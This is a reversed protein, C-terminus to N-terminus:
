LKYATRLAGWHKGLVRIPVDIERMMVVVGNGMDRPYSQILYPRVNRAAALGARDDFIRRNRCNATNWTVDGPRQPLSYIRNHVPLYGSRDVAACFAIRRDSALLAEQISPLVDDFADLFRTRYQVPDTGEIPVYCNDFLDAESLVRRAVMEDLAASIKTAASTAAEIFERNEDRIDKLLAHLATEANAVFHDFRVHLGLPSRNVITARIEGIDRITMPLTAGVGIADRDKVHLLMGGESLDVTKAAAEGRYTHMTVPLECPLRDHRRRDGVITQRLFIVFRTRLKEALKAAQQGSQAVDMNRITAEETAADIEAAGAAITSAFQASEASSEGLQKAVQNQQELASMVTKFVPRIAKMVAAIRGVAAISEAADHQIAQIRRAIEETANQTERSLAKVESAVVAFGRGAEGARASEITANLALLNTQKAISAILNVVSDIDASSTKLREISQGAGNAAHNAEDTLSDAERVQRAIEGACATFEEISASLQASSSAAAQAQMEFAQSRLCISILAEASSKIGEGVADAARHVDGIMAALDAEILDVTERVSALTTELSASNNSTPVTDPSEIAPLHGSSTDAASVLRKFLTLPM